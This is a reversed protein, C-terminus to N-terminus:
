LPNAVKRFKYGTIPNGKPDDRVPGTTLEVEEDCHFSGIEGELQAFIRIGEPLDVYGLTLPLRQKMSTQGIFLDTVSYLRGRRSLPIVEMEECWCDPNPCFTFRPFWIRGCRSCRYGKLYPTGKDPIELLDPHFFALNEGDVDTRRGM